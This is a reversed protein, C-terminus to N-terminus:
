SEEHMLRQFPKKWNNKLKNIDVKIINDGKLGSVILEKGTSVKGLLGFPIGKMAKEFSAKNDSKIEVVYRSNSESFLLVDDRNSSKERPMKKLSVEAGLGGAFLMESLTVGLGGESCDHCSLVMGKQIINSLVQMSRYSDKMHVRPVVGGKKGSTLLYQSGGLEQFTKGIIYLLSGESKIDSSITKSVDDVVSIASILLTPPIAVTDKGTNFENNLSDKGSIFPTGYVKAVDYCAQSARVLSGLQEPKETNGWCFNDLIATKKIDGGVSVIQRMAEDIVSAAM